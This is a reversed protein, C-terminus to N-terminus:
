ILQPICVPEMTAPTMPVFSGLNRRKPSVILVDTVQSFILRLRLGHWAAVSSVGLSPHHLFARTADM